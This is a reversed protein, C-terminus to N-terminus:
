NFQDNNISTEIPPHLEGDDFRYDLNNIKFLFNGIMFIILLGIAITCWFAGKIIIKFAKSEVLIDGWNM